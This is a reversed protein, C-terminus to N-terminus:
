FSQSNFPFELCFSQGFTSNSCNSIPGNNEGVIGGAEGYTCDVTISCSNTCGEITGANYGAIGGASAYIRGSGSSNVDITGYVSCNRIIAPGLNEDVLGGVRNSNGSSAYFYRDIQINLDCILGSNYLFLSSSLNSITHGGGDLCGSFSFRSRSFGELSINETLIYAASPFLQINSLHEATSIEYPSWLFGNGGAFNERDCPPFTTIPVTRLVPFPYTSITEFKWVTSFDFGSFAQETQM